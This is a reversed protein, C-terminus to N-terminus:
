RKPGTKQASTTQSKITQSSFPKTDIGRSNMVELLATEARKLSRREQLEVRPASNGIQGSKEQTKRLNAVLQDNTLGELDKKFAIKDAKGEGVTMAKGGISAAMSPKGIEDAPTNERQNATPMVPEAPAMGLDRTRKPAQDLNVVNDRIVDAAAQLHQDGVQSVFKLFNESRAAQWRGDDTQFIIDGTKLPYVFAHVDKQSIAANLAPDILGSDLIKRIDLNGVTGAQTAEVALRNAEMTTQGSGIQEVANILAAAGGITAAVGIKVSDASQQSRIGVDYNGESRRVEYNALKGEFEQGPASNLEQSIQAALRDSYRQAPPEPPIGMTESFQQSSRQRSEAMMAALGRQLENINKLDKKFADDGGKSLFNAASSLKKAPSSYAFIQRRVSKMDKRAKDIEKRQSRIEAALEFNSMKKISQRSHDYLAKNDGPLPLRVGDQRAKIEARTGLEGGAVKLYIDEVSQFGRGRALNNVREFFRNFPKLAQEVLPGPKDRGTRYKAFAQAARKGTLESEIVTSRHQFVGLRNGEADFLQAMGDKEGGPPFKITEGPALKRWTKGNDLSVQDFTSFAEDLIAREKQNLVHTLGEFVAVNVAKDPDFGDSDLAIAITGRLPDMDVSPATGDLGQLFVKIDATPNMERVAKVIDGRMIELRSAEAESRDFLEAGGAKYLRENIDATLHQASRYDRLSATFRDFSEAGVASRLAADYERRSAMNPAARSSGAGFSPVWLSEFSDLLQEVDAPSRGANIM